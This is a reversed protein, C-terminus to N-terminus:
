VADLLARAEALIRPVNLNAICAYDPCNEKTDGQHCPYTPRVVATRAGRPAWRDPFDSQFPFIGLTRCGVAAAVHMTGTTIGVFLRARQALAGFAGIGLRGAVSVVGAGKAAGRVVDDAIARDADSGSVLVPMGFEAYLAAALASWAQTPWMNRKTAEANMPHLMVFPLASGLLQREVASAESAGSVIVPPAEDGEDERARVNKDDRACVSKNERARMSEDERAHMSKNERARMSEDERAHMSKDDHASRLPTSRAGQLDLTTLIEQAEREDQPTPVFHPVANPADCNLARAYDLLIDSWPSTVDGDESRVVIRKTFRWSYLRRAQGVRTPIKAREAVRATHATAWTTVCAAYGRERLQAALARENSGDDTLVDDLDPCRQLAARHGPLTLADVRDFRKRLAQAVVTAVLSDGIGGGACYLLAAGDSM